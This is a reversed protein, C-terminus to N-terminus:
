FIRERREFDFASVSFYQSILTIQEKSKKQEDAQAQKASEADLTLKEQASTLETIQQNALTLNQRAESYTFIKM